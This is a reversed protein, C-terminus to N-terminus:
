GIALEHDSVQQRIRAAIEQALDLSDLSRAAKYRKDGITQVEIDYYRKNGSQMGPVPRIDKLEDGSIRRPRGLLLVGGRLTLGGLGIEIRQQGFWLQLVAFLLLLDFVSFVIAFLLPAEAAILVFVVASWILAFVSVGLDVLKHRAAKFSWRLRGDALTALEIGSKALEQAQRQPATRTRSPDIERSARGTEATRFVPVEFTSRYAVGNTDASAELRWQVAGGAGSLDSPEVDLGVPIAIPIASAEGM